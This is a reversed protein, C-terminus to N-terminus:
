SNHNIDPGANRLHSCQPESFNHSKAPPHLLNEGSFTAMVPGSLRGQGAMGEAPRGHSMVPSSVRVEGVRGECLMGTVKAHILLQPWHGHADLPVLQLVVRVMPRLVLVPDDEPGM